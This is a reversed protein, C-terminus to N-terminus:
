ASKDKAPSTKDGLSPNSPMAMAISLAIALLVVPHFALNHFIGLVSTSAIIALQAPTISRMARLGNGLLLAFLVFGIGGREVLVQLFISHADLHLLPHQPHPDGWLTLAAQPYGGYGIGLWPHAWSLELASRWAFCRDVPWRNLVSLVLPVLASLLLCAVVLKRRLEKPCRHALGWALVGAGLGLWSARTHTGGLAALYLLLIMGGLWRQGPLTLRDRLVHVVAFVIPILTHAFKLRHFILGGARFAGTSGVERVRETPRWADIVSGYDISVWVQILAMIASLVAVLVLCLGIKERHEPSIRCWAVWAVPFAFLHLASQPAGTAWPRPAWSASLLALGVFLILIWAPRSRLMQRWPVDPSLLLACAGFGLLGLGEGSM